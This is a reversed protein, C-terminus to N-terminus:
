AHKIPNSLDSLVDSGMSSKSNKSVPGPNLEVGGIMLLINIVVAFICTFIGGSFLM